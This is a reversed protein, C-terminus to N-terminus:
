QGLDQVRGLRVATQGLAIRIVPMVLVCNDYPTTLVKGHDQAFPTGAQAIIELGSFDRVFHFDPSAPTIVDTIAIVPGANPLGDEPAVDIMNFYALFRQCADFATEISKADNHGGCEILSATHPQTDDDFAGFDRLRRGTSHGDDLIIPYPLGLGQALAINKPRRGALILPPAPRSMSHLDLLHDLSQIIPRLARARTLERSTRHGNLTERDWLRNFDEALAREGPPNVNIAGCLADPNALILSVRGRKLTPPASLLKALAMLGCIENGHVLATIGLHPGPNPSTLTVIGPVFQTGPLFPALATLL